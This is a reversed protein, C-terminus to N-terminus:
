NTPGGHQAEAVTGDGFLRRSEFDEYFLWEEPKGSRVFPRSPDPAAYARSLLAAM